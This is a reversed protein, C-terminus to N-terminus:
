NREHPDGGKPQSQWEVSLCGNQLYYRPRMGQEPWYGIEAYFKLEDRSRHSFVCEDEEWLRLLSKRDLKDLKSSGWPLPEPMPEPFRWETAVTELQEKTLGELFREYWLWERFRQERELREIRSRITTM